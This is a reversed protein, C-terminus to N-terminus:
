NAHPPKAEGTRPQPQVKRFRYHFRPNGAFGDSQLSGDGLKFPSSGDGFVKPPGQDDDEFGALSLTGDEIKFIAGIVKGIDTALECGTITARLRQPSTGEQLTFTADYWDTTKLGQFHISNGTFTITIRGASEQGVLVGEWRGQLGQLEAAATPKAAATAEVRGVTAPVLLTLATLALATKLTM